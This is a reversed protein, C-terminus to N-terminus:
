VSALDWYAHAFTILAEARRKIAETDWIPKGDVVEKANTFRELELQSMLPAQEYEDLKKPFPDNGKRANNANTDLVLNGISHLWNDTFEKDRGPLEIISSEVEDATQAAIHEIAIGRRSAELRGASEDILLLVDTELEALSIASAEGADLDMLTADRRPSKRIEVWPPHQTAWQRVEPPAGPDMLEIFVDEPIVVRHYLQQLIGTEGILVLYNIPSTDAVVVTM